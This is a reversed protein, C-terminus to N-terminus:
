YGHRDDQNYAVLIGDAGSNTQGMVIIRGSKQECVRSYSTSSSNVLVSGSNFTSDITMVGSNDYYRTLWGRPTGNTGVVLARGHSDVIVDVAGTQGISAYTSATTGNSNLQVIQSNTTTTTAVYMADGSLIQLSTVKPHNSPNTDTPYSEYGSGNYGTDSDGDGGGDYGYGGGAPADGVYRAVAFDTGNSSTSGVVMFGGNSLATISRGNDPSAVAGDLNTTTFGSSGFSTDLISGNAAYRAILFNACKYFIFFYVLSVGITM